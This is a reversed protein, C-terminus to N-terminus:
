KSAPTISKLRLGAWQLLTITNPSLWVMLSTFYTQRYVVSLHQFLHLVQTHNNPISFNTMASTDSNSETTTIALIRDTRNHVRETYRARLSPLTLAVFTVLGYAYGPIQTPPPAECGLRRSWFASPTSAPVSHPPTDGGWGVLRDPPANYAGGAPDPASGRGFVLKATNLAQSFVGSLWLDTINSM